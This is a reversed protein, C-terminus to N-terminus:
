RGCDYSEILRHVEDFYRRTDADNIPVNNRRGEILTLLSCLKQESVRTNHASILVAIFVGSAVSLMIFLLALIYDRRMM